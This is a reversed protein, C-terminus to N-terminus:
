GRRDLHADGEDTAAEAAEAASDAAPEELRTARPADYEDSPTERRLAGRVARRQLGQHALACGAGDDAPAAIQADPLLHGRKWVRMEDHVARADDVVREGLVHLM